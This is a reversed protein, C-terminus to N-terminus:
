VFLNKLQKKKVFFTYDLKFYCIRMCVRYYRSKVPAAALLTTLM